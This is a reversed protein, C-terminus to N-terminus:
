RARRIEELPRSVLPSEKHFREPIRDGYELAEAAWKRGLDPLGYAHCRDVLFRWANLKEGVSTEPIADLLGRLTELRQRRKEEPQDKLDLQRFVGAVRLFRSCPDRDLESGLRIALDIYEDARGKAAPDLVGGSLCYRAAQIQFGFLKLREERDRPTQVAAQRVAEHLDRRNREINQANLRGLALLCSNGRATLDPIKLATQAYAEWPFRDHLLKETKSYALNETMSDLLRFRIWPTKVHELYVDCLDFYRDEDRLRFHTSSLSSCLTRAIWEPLDLDFLRPIIDYEGQFVLSGITREMELRIRNDEETFDNETTNKRASWYDGYKSGASELLTKAFLAKDEASPYLTDTSYSPTYHILNILSLCTSIKLPDDDDLNKVADHIELLIGRSRAQDVPYEKNELAFLLNIKEQGLPLTAITEPSALLERKREEKDIGGRKRVIELIEKNTEDAFGSAMWRLRDRHHEIVRDERIQRLYELGRDAQKNGLYACALAARGADAAYDSLLTATQEAKAIEKQFNGTYSAAYCLRNIVSLLVADRDPESFIEGATVVAAGSDRHDLQVEALGAQVVMKQYYESKQFEEKTYGSFGFKRIDELNEFPQLAPRIRRITAAAERPAEAQIQWSAIALLRGNPRPRKEARFMEERLIAWLEERDRYQQADRIRFLMEDDEAELPATCDAYGASHAWGASLITERQRAPATEAAQSCGITLVSFLFACRVFFRMSIM